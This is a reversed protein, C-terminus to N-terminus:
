GIGVIVRAGRDAPEFDASTVRKPKLGKATRQIAPDRGGSQFFRMDRRFARSRGVSIDNAKLWGAAAKTQRSSFTPSGSVTKGGSKPDVIEINGGRRVARYQQPFEIVVRTSIGDLDKSMNEVDSLRGGYAEAVAAIGSVETQNAPGAVAGGGGGGAKSGRGGM